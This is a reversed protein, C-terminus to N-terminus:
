DVFEGFSKLSEQLLRQEEFLLKDEGQGFPKKMLFPGLLETLSSSLTDYAASPNNHRAQDDAIRKFYDLASRKLPDTMRSLM